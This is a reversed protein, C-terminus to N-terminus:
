HAFLCRRYQHVDLRSFDTALMPTPQVPPRTERVRLCGRHFMAEEKKLREKGRSVDEASVEDAAAGVGLASAKEVAASAKQAETNNEAAFGV